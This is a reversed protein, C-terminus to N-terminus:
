KKKQKRWMVCEAMKQRKDEEARISEQKFTLIEDPIVANFLEEIHRPSMGTQLMLMSRAYLYYLLADIGSYNYVPFFKITMLEEVVQPDTGDVVLEIM